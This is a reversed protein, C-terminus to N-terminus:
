CGLCNPYRTLDISRFVRLVHCEGFYLNSDCANARLVMLFIVLVHEAVHYLKHNGESKLLNFKKKFEHQVKKCPMLYPATKQQVWVSSTDVRISKLCM